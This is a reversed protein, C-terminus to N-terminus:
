NNERVLVYKILRTSGRRGRLSTRYRGMRRKRQGRWIVVLLISCCCSLLVTIVVVLVVVLLLLTHAAGPWGPSLGAVGGGAQGAEESAPTHNRGLSGATAETPQHSGEIAGPPITSTSISTSTHDPPPSTSPQATTPPFTPPTESNGQGPWTSSRARPSDPTPPSLTTSTPPTPAGSAAQLSTTSSPPGSATSATYTPTAPPPAPYLPPPHLLPPPPPPPHIFQRKDSALPESDNVRGFHHPLVRVNSTFHKGFVLLDPDVGKTINYLVVSGRRSLVCSELAPCHLHLCNAAVPSTDYHFIALNCSFNRTLCCTRSCKLASEEAYRELLQAGRRESEELDIFVGPFRRIWCNKYYSTPSCRPEALSATVSLVALLAAWACSMARPELLLM